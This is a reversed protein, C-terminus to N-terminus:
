AKGIASTTARKGAGGAGSGITSSKKVQKPAPAKKAQKVEKVAAAPAAAAPAVKAAKKSEPAAPAAEEEDDTAARKKGKKAAAASPRTEGASMSVDGDTDAPAEFRDSLDSSWIPLFVSTSTKIGVSLVNDWQDQVLAVVHPLAAVLNDVTQSASSSSVTAIRVSSGM